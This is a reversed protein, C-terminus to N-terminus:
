EQYQRRENHWAAQSGLRLLARVGAAGWLKLGVARVAAVGGRWVRGDGLTGVAAGLCDEFDGGRGQGIKDEKGGCITLERELELGGLADGGGDQAGSEERGADFGGIAALEPLWRKRDLLWAGRAPSSEHMADKEGQEEGNGRREASLHGHGHGL